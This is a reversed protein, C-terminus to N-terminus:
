RYLMFSKRRAGRLPVAGDKVAHRSEVFRDGDVVVHDVHQQAIQHAMVTLGGRKENKEKKVSLRSSCLPLGHGGAQPHDSVLGSKRFTRHLRRDESQLAAFQNRGSSHVFCCRGLMQYLPMPPFFSSLWFSARRVSARLKAAFLRLDSASRWIASM